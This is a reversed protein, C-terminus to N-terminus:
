TVINVFIPDSSLKLKEYVDIEEKEGFDKLIEYIVYWVCNEIRKMKWKKIIQRIEGM